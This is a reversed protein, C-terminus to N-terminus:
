EVDKRYAEPLPMWALIDYSEFQQNSYDYEYFSKLTTSYGLETSKSAGEITVLYYGSEEPLRESVPIWEGVKPQSQVIHLANVYCYEGHNYKVVSDDLGAELMQNCKAREKEIHDQIEEILKKEDIM